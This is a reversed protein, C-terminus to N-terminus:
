AAALEGRQAREVANALAAEFRDTADDWTYRGAIVRAQDSMARWSTESMRCIRLIAEAMAGPDEPPILLGGGDALLEPAAGAPAAIVPTRCAMAELIPLGFGESRSAFLWADCAAYIGPIENQPPMSVYRAGDPMPLREAPEAMAGFSILQLGPERRKAQEYAQFSLDCGKFPATSYMVGVTSTPRKGRPSANFHELDVSNPVVDAHPDDFQSRAVDALWRAVCIKHMPLRWTMDVRCIPQSPFAEYHQLFYAKAGKSAPFSAVWEATEWWTAVVVDADPVDSAEVPRPEDIVHHRVNMEDLHSPGPRAEAPVPIGKLFKRARERLTPRRHPPSVVSVVHGRETLRKAYMAVVRVGGSLDVPPLVFTIRM